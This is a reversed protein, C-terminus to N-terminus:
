RDGWRSVMSANYIREQMEWQDKEGITLKIAGIDVHGDCEDDENNDGLAQWCPLSIVTGFADKQLNFYHVHSFILLTALSENKLAANLVNWIKARSQATSKGYPVTSKGIKHRSELKFWDNIITKLMRKNTVRTDLNHEKRLLKELHGCVMSELSEGNLSLNHQSGSIIIYEDIANWMMLLEAADKAQEDLTINSANKWKKKHIGHIIDGNCVVVNPKAGLYNICDDYKQKLVNQIINTPNRTLGTVSGTHFDGLLIWTKNKNRFM